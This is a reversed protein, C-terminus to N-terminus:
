RYINEGEKPTRDFSPRLQEFCIALFIWLGSVKKKGKLIMSFCVFEQLTLKFLM